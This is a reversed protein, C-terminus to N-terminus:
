VCKNEIWLRLDGYVRLAGSSRLLASTSKVVCLTVHCHFRHWMKVFLATCHICNCTNPRYCVVLPGLGKLFNCRRWLYFAVRLLSFMDLIAIYIWNVIIFGMKYPYTKLKLTMKNSTSKLACNLKPYSSTITDIFWNDIWTCWNCHSIAVDNSLNIILISHSFIWTM